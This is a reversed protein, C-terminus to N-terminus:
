EKENAEKEQLYEMVDWTVRYPAENRGTEWYLVAIRSVRYRTGFETRTLGLSARYEKILNPWFDKDALTKITMCM